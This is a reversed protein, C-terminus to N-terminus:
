SCSPRQSPGRLSYFDDRGHVSPLTTTISNNYMHSSFPLPLTTYSNTTTYQRIPVKATTKENIVLTGDRFELGIAFGLSKPLHALLSADRKTLFAKAAEYVDKLEHGPVKQELCSEYLAMLTGYTKEVKSPADVMFTRSLNACYSKYRSGLSCIIIDPSLIDENNQATVKIDYKGGSQVIPEFCSEVVDAAIKVGITSPDYIIGEVKKALDLHKIKTDADLIGEMEQVFGHKMVKNTLVAARKCLDQEAEDKVAFFMGIAGAIEIMDVQSQNVFEMWGPIFSGAYKEKFMSGINKGTKRVLHMLNHFNERNVGEDKEKKIINVSIANESTMLASELYACKKATAMFHFSKPTIIIISDPFEYGLLYFHLSSAKSYVNEDTTGFPICLVDAGNYYRTKNEKWHAQLRELRQFFREPNIVVEM